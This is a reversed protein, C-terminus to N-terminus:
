DQEDDEEEDQILVVGEVKELMVVIEDYLTHMEVMVVRRYDLEDIDDQIRDRTTKVYEYARQPISKGGEEINEIIVDSM